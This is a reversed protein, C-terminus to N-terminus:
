GTCSMPLPVEVPLTKHEPHVTCVESRWGKIRVLGRSQFLTWVGRSDTFAVPIREQLLHPKSSTQHQFQSGKGEDGVGGQGACGQLAQGSTTGM